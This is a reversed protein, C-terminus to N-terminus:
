PPHGYSSPFTIEDQEARGAECAAQDGPVEGGRGRRVHPDRQGTAVDGRQGAAPAPQGADRAVIQPSAWPPVRSRGSVDVKM